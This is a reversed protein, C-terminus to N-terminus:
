RLPSGPNKDASNRRTTQTVNIDPRATLAQPPQTIAQRVDPEPDEPKNIRARVVRDM